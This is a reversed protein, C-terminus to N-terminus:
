EMCLWRKVVSERTQYDDNGHAFYRHYSTLGLFGRPGKTYTPTPWLWMYYLAESKYSRVHGEQDKQKKPGNIGEVIRVV